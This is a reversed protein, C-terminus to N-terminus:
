GGCVIPVRGRARVEAIAEEARQAWVSADMPELPDQVDVLHHRARVLEQATPKGSGVDFGRYVQVSDASIVEGGLEECLGIALETKGTATPGVVCLLEEVSPEFPLWSM